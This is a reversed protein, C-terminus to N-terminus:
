ILETKDFILCFIIPDLLSISFIEFGLKNRYELSLEIDLIFKYSFHMQQFSM